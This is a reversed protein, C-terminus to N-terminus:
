FSSKIQARGIHVIKNNGTKRGEYSINVDINKMMRKSYEMSWLLNKGNKLGDLMNLELATNTIGSYNVNAFKLSSNIRSTKEKSYTFGVKIDSIKAKENPTGNLNSKLEFNYDTTLRIKNGIRLSLSPEIKQSVIKFDNNSFFESLYSKEGKTFISIFDLNKNLALRNRLYYEKLSRQEFGITQVIKNSNNRIGFQLDYITNGRNFYLIGSYLSNFSVLSTDKSNFQDLTFASISGMSKNDVRYNSVISIKSLFNLLKGKKELTRLYIKPELRLSQTFGINNTRIFENNFLNVRVFNAQDQFPAIQFENRQQIGDGNDIWIYNGQGTLVERFDYEIKPEQGSSIKYNTTSNFAGKALNLINNFNGLLVANNKEITLNPDEIQLNRYTFGWGTTSINKISWKGNLEYEDANTVLSFFGPESSYDKRNNYEIGFSFNDKEDSRVFFKSYDYHFSSKDLIQNSNEYIENKEREGYWGITWDDIKSFQKSISIKPRSFTSNLQDSTSNLYNNQLDIEFGNKKFNGYLNHRNGNYIGFQSFNSFTYGLNTLNEKQNLAFGFEGLFEDSINNPNINWDRAFEAERYPNLSKFNIRKSEMELIPSLIWNKRKGLPIKNQYELRGSFGTNDKDDSESLRNLDFYSMGIELLIKSEANFNYSSRLSYMQKIEPAVLRVYPEYNGKGKGVYKYVRGNSNIGSNIAYSGNGSGVESFNALYFSSDPNNTFILISDKLDQNYIKKYYVKNPNYVEINNKIGSRIANADQDGAINLLALDLSDLNAGGLTNKSDQDSVINFDVKLKGYEWGGGYQYLSRLFTQDAYEFEVIIRSDKTILRNTSFIIEARDYYIVYDNEEGRALLKGDVYVKETGSLVILFKEGESGTLKYPGQNGEKTPLTIRSFKGRSIAISGKQKFLGYKENYNEQLVSIGQLKKYYNIFYSNPRSIEYDGAILTTNKKKIQIFVKDFDNLQQTTGEPQIPINADSISAAIELDDGLKGGLQLNFNSNLVLSQSNGFSLGRSFSGDYDLGKSFLLDNQKQKYIEFDYEIALDSPKKVTKTSDLHFFSAGFNIPFVRYEVLISDGISNSKKNILELFLSDNKLSYNLSDQISLNNYYFNLSSPIVSLSDLSIPSNKISIFKSRKNSIEHQGNVSACFSLFIMLVCFTRM